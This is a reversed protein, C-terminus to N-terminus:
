KPFYTSDDHSVAKIGEILYHKDLNRVTFHSKKGGQERSYEKFSLGCTTEENVSVQGRNSWSGMEERWQFGSVRSM